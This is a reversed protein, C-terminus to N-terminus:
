SIIIQGAGAPARGAAIAMIAAKVVIRPNMPFGLYSAFHINLRYSLQQYGLKWM